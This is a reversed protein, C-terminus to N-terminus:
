NPLTVEDNFEKEFLEKQQQTEEIFHREHVKERVRRAKATADETDTVNVPARTLPEDTANAVPAPSSSLGAAAAGSAQHQKYDGEALPQSESNVENQSFM